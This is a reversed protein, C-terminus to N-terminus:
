WKKYIKIQLPPPPETEQHIIESVWRFIFFWFLALLFRSLFFFSARCFPYTSSLIQFLEFPFLDFFIFASLDGWGGGCLVCTLICRYALALPPQLNYQRYYMYM